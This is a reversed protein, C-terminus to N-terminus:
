LSSHTRVAHVEEYVHAVSPSHGLFVNDRYVAGRRGVSTVRRVISTLIYTYLIDLPAVTSIVTLSLEIHFFLNFIKM